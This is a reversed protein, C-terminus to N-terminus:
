IGLNALASALHNLASTLQPHDTEFKLMFDHTRDTLVGQEGADHPDSAIAHEIDAILGQLQTRLNEELSPTQELTSRLEQLRDVLNDQNM